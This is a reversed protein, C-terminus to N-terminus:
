GIHSKDTFSKCACVIKNKGNYNYVGLITDQVNFNAMKFINSGIYESYANNIYSINKNKERIPNPFKVLYRNNNYILTKKKESGSYINFEEIANTFDVM